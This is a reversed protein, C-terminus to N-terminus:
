TVKLLFLLIQRSRLHLANEFDYLFMLVTEDIDQALLLTSNNVITQLYQKKTSTTIAIATTTTVSLFQIHTRDRYVHEVETRGYRQIHKKRMYVM